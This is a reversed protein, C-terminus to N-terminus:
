LLFVFKPEQLEGDNNKKTTSECEETKGFPLTM